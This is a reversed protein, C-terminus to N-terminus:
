RRVRRWPAGRAASPGFAAHERVAVEERAAYVALVAFPENTTEPKNNTRTTLPARAAGTGACADRCDLVDRRRRSDPCSEFCYFCPRAENEFCAIRLSGRQAHSRPESM